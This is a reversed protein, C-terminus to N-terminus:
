VTSCAVGSLVVADFGEHLECARLLNRWEEESRVRRTEYIVFLVNQWDRSRYGSAVALIEDLLRKAEADTSIFKYEILTKSSPIGTDPEFNKIPKAM